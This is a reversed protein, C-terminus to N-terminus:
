RLDEVTSVVGWTDWTLLCEAFYLYCKKVYYVKDESPGSSGVVTHV